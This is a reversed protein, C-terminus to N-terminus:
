KQPSLSSLVASCKEFGSSKGNAREAVRPVSSFLAAIVLAYGTGGPGGAGPLINEIALSFLMAPSVGLLAAAQGAHQTRLARLSIKVVEVLFLILLSFGVVGWEYFCRLFETDMSRNPDLAAEYQAGLALLVNAGSSTGSGGLLKWPGRQALQDAAEQYVLMRWGLTGVDEISSDRNGALSILEAIRNTPLCQAVLAVMLLAPVAGILCRKLLTTFDLKRAQRVFKLISAILFLLVTAIFAYRSGTLIISSVLGIETIRTWLRSSGGFVLLALVSILFAAFVQADSFTTFRNTFIGEHGEINGFSSGLLYTQVVAFGIACWAVVVLTQETIWGRSWASTFVIVLAVYCWLYGIMKLASLPYDTWLISILAYIILGIWIKATRPWKSQRSGIWGMRWLLIGPLVIVKVANEIGITSTSVLSPGALGTMDIQAILLYSLVSWRLNLCVIGAALVWFLIIPFYITM